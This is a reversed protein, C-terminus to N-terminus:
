EGFDPVSGESIIGAIARYSCLNHYYAHGFKRGACLLYAQRAHHIMERRVLNEEEAIDTLMGTSSVGRCSFFCLDANYDRIAACTAPGVAALCSNVMRGGLSITHVGYESLRMLTKLGNSIVTLDKRAALFPVLNYASSSADLFVVQGDQILRAAKQAMVVKENSQEMERLLFPIKIASAGNEELIAGGHVRKLLNQKELEALDRRISPESCYLSKALDHVLVRRQKILLELIAKQRDTNM